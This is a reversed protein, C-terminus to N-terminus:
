SRSIPLQFSGANGADEGCIEAHGRPGNSRSGRLRLWTADERAACSDDRRVCSRILYWSPRGAGTQLEDEHTWEGKHTKEFLCARPNLRTLRLNPAGQEGNKQVSGQSHGICIARPHLPDSLLEARITPWGSSIAYTGISATIPSTRRSERCTRNQAITPNKLSIGREKTRAGLSKIHHNVTVRGPSRSEFPILPMRSQQCGHRDYIDQSGSTDCRRHQPAIRTPVWGKRAPSFQSAGVASLLLACSTPSALKAFDGPACFAREAFDDPACFPNIADPKTSM